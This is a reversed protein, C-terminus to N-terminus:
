LQHLVGILWINQRFNTYFVLWDYTRDLVIV